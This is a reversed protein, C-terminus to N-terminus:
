RRKSDRERKNRQNLAEALAREISRWAVDMTKTKKRM